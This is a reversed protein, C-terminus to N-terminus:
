SGMLLRNRKGPDEVDKRKRRSVDPSRKKEHSKSASQQM